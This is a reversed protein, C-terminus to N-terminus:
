TIIYYYGIIQFNKKEMDRAAIEFRNNRYGKLLSERLYQYLFPWFGWERFQLVHTLEHQLWAKNHLLESATANHLYITHGITIAMAGSSGLKWAALRALLHQEKIRIYLIKKKM